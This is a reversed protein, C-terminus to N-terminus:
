LLLWWEMKVTTYDNEAKRNKKEDKVVDDEDFDYKECTKQFRELAAEKDTHVGVIDSSEEDHELVTWVIKMNDLFHRIYLFKDDASTFVPKYSHFNGKLWKGDIREFKLKYDLVLSGSKTTMKVEIPIANGKSMTSCEPLFSFKKNWGNGSITKNPLLIWDEFLSDCIEKLRTDM